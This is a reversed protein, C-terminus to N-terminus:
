AFEVIERKYPHTAQPYELDSPQEYMKKILWSTKLGCRDLHYQSICIFM